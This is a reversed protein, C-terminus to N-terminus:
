HIISEKFSLLDFQLALRDAPVKTKPSLKNDYVLKRLRSKGM